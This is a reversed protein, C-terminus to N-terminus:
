HPFILTSISLSPFPPKRGISSRADYLNRNGTIIKASSRNRSSLSFLWAFEGRRPLPVGCGWEDPRFMHFKCDCRLSELRSCEASPQPDGLDVPCRPRDRHDAARDRGRSSGAVGLGNLTVIGAIRAFEGNLGGNSIRLLYQSNPNLVSFSRNFTNPAGKGRVFTEPGFAVWTGAAHAPLQCLVMLIAVLVMSCLRVHRAPWLNPSLAAKLIWTPRM